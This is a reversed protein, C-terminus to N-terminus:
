CPMTVVLTTEQNWALAASTPWSSNHQSANQLQGNADNAYGRGDSM